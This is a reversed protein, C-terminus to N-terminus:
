GCHQGMAGAVADAVAVAAADAVVDAVVAAVKAFASAELAGDKEVALGLHEVSAFDDAAAALGVVWPVLDV